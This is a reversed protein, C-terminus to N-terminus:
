QTIYIGRRELEKQAVDKKLKEYSCFSMSYTARGQSKSRLDTSYGFMSMLPVSAKISERNGKSNMELIKGKRSNLDAIIDGTYEMQTLVEVSMIPWLLSIQAKKCGEKLALSACIKFSLPTSELEVWGIELITVKVNILPFGALAGGPATSNLGEYIAEIFETPINRVKVQNVIELGNPFDAPEVQLVLKAFQMKGAMEEHFTKEIIVTNDISERFSVQPRGVNIGLQYDRQLRDILIELHLEGMGFLLMQGTEKNRSYKFSPDEMMLQGLLTEMKEEDASTKPEIALSIVTEPFKLLDLIIPKNEVCLTDGTQTCKLGTVAIIDGAYANELETRKNAHLQLIKLVREKKKKIPNYVMQGLKLHGSYIRLYTLAGSFSDFQIKFALACFNEEEQPNVSILEDNNKISHGVIKGRDLPSPLYNIIADLLPQVGKNKFSSGCLIPILKNEITYKRIAQHIEPISIEKGELYNEAISDDLDALSELLKDRFKLSNELYEQPIERRDVKVGLDEQSWYLAKQEILDIVGQFNEERGIPLQIAVPNKKLKEKIEEIIEEFKSGTRDMKNIFAIRPVNYHDAQAWVTETQPEVGGVACLIGVAGDLVRLSREVEITFDVHGPTDILNIYYDKNWSFTTAASTITIGREQEQPMWDMTATGTHVEGLKYNKGAYFLFRETTTTKGADIHAM